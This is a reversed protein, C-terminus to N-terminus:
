KPLALVVQSEGTSNGILTVQVATPKVSAPVDFTYTDDPRTMGPNIDDSNAWDVDREYTTGDAGVLMVPNPTGSGINSPTKGTNTEALKVVVLVAGPKAVEPQNVGNSYSHKTAVSAVKLHFTTDDNHVDGQLLPKPPPAGTASGKPAPPAASHTHTASTSSCASVAVLVAAAIAVAPLSRM